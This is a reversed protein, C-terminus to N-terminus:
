APSRSDNLKRRTRPARRRPSTAPAADGGDPAAPTEEDGSLADSGEPADIAIVQDLLAYLRSLAEKGMTQELMQYHAEIAQSLKLVMRRGKATAEVVSRRADAPDSARRVLGDREMRQLVGTLSPGLIFAERAVTGVDVGGAQGREGLVRLVRWQQDTLGHERLHPRTHAMVAERAQLLLRPLNRHAFPQTIEPDM